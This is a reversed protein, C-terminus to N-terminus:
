VVSKRDEEIYIETIGLENLKELYEKRLIAGAPLVVQYDSTMIERALIEGGKLDLLRKQKM